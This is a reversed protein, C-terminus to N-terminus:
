FNTTIIFYIQCIISKRIVPNLLQPNRLLSSPNQTNIIKIEVFLIIIIQLLRRQPYFALNRPTLIIISIYINSYKETQHLLKLTKFTYLLRYKPILFLNYKKLIVEIHM